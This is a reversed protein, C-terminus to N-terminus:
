RRESLYDAFMGHLDSVTATDITIDNEIKNFENYFTKILTDKKIAEILLLDREQRIDHLKIEREIDIEKEKPIIWEVISNITIFSLLIIIITQKSFFQM